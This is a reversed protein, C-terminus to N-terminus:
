KEFDPYFMTIGLQIKGRFSEGTDPDEMDLELDIDPQVRQVFERIFRTDAVVLNNISEVLKDPTVGDISKILYRYMTTATADAGKNFSKIKENAAVSAEYDKLRGVTFLEIQITKGSIPLKCTFTNSGNFLTEDISKHGIETLDITLQMEKGNPKRVTTKYDKGYGYIRAAIMIANRDGILLDDYNFKTVILSQLLKDLVINKDIYSKTSLIDEEKATMYKIEIEGSRLPHGEPYLLGKSPLSVIETPFREQSAAKITEPTIIEAM